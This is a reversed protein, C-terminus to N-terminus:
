IRNQFSKRSRCELGHPTFSQFLEQTNRRQLSSVHSHTTVPEEPAGAEPDGTKHMVDWLSALQLM